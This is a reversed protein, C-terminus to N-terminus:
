PTQEHNQYTQPHCSKTLFHKNESSAYMTEHEVQDFFRLRVRFALRRDPCRHRTGAAAWPNSPLYQCKKNYLSDFGRNQHFSTSSHM